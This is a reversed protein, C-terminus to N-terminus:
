HGSTGQVEKVYEKTRQEWLRISEPTLRYNQTIGDEYMVPIDKPYTASVWHAFPEWMQPSFKTTDLFDLASVIKGDRVTFVITSGSYPGRGIEDSRLGHFDYACAVTTDPDSTTAECSTVTQEYGSAELWSLTLSLGAADPTVQPDILGSLDADAAVYTMATKADFAGYADLFGMATAKAAEAPDATADGAPTATNGGPRTALFLGVAALGIAAAVVFAGVKRNRATRRQRREQQSWSDQDPETQKTVMEFVEKLEAM